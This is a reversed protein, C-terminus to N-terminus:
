IVPEGDTLCANRDDDPWELGFAEACDQSAEFWCVEKSKIQGLLMILADRKSIGRSRLYFLADAPVGNLGGFFKIFFQKGDIFELYRTIDKIKTYEHPFIGIEGKPTLISVRHMIHGAGGSMQWPTAFWISFPPPTFQCPIPRTILIWSGDDDVQNGDPFYDHYEDLAGLGCQFTNRTPSLTHRATVMDMVEDRELKEREEAPLEEFWQAPVKRWQFRSRTRAKKPKATASM